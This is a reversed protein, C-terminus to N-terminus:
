EGAAGTAISAGFGVLASGSPGVVASVVPDDAFSVYVGGGTNTTQVAAALATSSGAVLQFTGTAGNFVSLGYLGGISQLGMKLQKVGGANFVAMGVTGDSQPGVQIVPVGTAPNVFVLSYTGDTQQGMKLVTQGSPNFMAMGQTGDPQTGVSVVKAGTDANYSTLGISGDPQFGYSMAVRGASDLIQLAGSRISSNGLQSSNEIRHLRLMVDQLM